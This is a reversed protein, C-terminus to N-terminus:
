RPSVAGQTRPDVAGVVLGDAGPDDLIQMASRLTWRPVDEIEIGAGALGVRAEDAFGDEIRLGDTAPLWEWRPAVIADAPGAGRLLRTLTQANWPM